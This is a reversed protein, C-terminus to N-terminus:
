VIPGHLYVFLFSFTGTSSYKMENGSIYEPPSHCLNDEVDTISDLSEILDNQVDIRDYDSTLGYMLEEDQNNEDVDELFHNLSFESLNLSHQSYITQIQPAPFPSMPYLKGGEEVSDDLNCDISLHEEERHQINAELTDDEGLLSNGPPQGVTPTEIAEGRIEKCRESLSAVSANSGQRQHSIKVNVVHSPSASHQLLGRYEQDNATVNSAYNEQRQHSQKLNTVATSDMLKLVSGNQSIPVKYEKGQISTNSATSGQRQHSLNSNNKTTDDIVKVISNDISNEESQIILGCGKQNNVPSILCPQNNLTTHSSFKEVVNEPITSQDNAMDNSPNSPGVNCLENFTKRKSFEDSNLENCIGEATPSHHSDIYAPHHVVSLSPIESEILPESNESKAHNISQKLSSHDSCHEDVTFYFEPESITIVNNSILDTHTISNVNLENNNHIDTNEKNIINTHMINNMYNEKNDTNAQELNNTYGEEKNITNNPHLYVYTHTNMIKELESLHDIPFGKLTDNDENASIEETYTNGLEENNECIQVDVNSVNEKSFSNNMKSDKFNEMQINGNQITTGNQFPHDNFDINILEKNTCSDTGSTFLNINEEDVQSSFDINNLLDLENNGKCPSGNPTYNSEEEISGTGM